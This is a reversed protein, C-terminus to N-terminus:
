PEEITAKKSVFDITIKTGAKWVYDKNPEGEGNKRYLFDKSVPDVYVERKWSGFKKAKKFAPIEPYIRMRGGKALTASMTRGDANTTFLVSSGGCDGSLKLPQIAIDRSDLAVFIAYIGDNAVVARNNVVSYDTVTKLKAFNGKGFAKETSFELATGGRLYTIYFWRSAGAYGNEFSVVEPANWDWNGFDDGTM